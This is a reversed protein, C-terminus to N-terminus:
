LQKIPRWKRYNLFLSPTQCLHRSGLARPEPVALMKAAQLRLLTLLRQLHAKTFLLPASWMRASPVQHLCLLLPLPHFPKLSQKLLEPRRHRPHHLRSKDQRPSGYQSTRQTGIAKAMDQTPINPQARAQHARRMVTIERPLSIDQHDPCLTKNQTLQHHLPNSQIHAPCHPHM